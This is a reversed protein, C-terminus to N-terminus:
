IKDNQSLTFSIHVGTLEDISVKYIRDIDVRHRVLAKGSGLQVSGSHKRAINVLHHLGTGRTPDDFQSTGLRIAFEIAEFDDRLAPNKSNSQLSTSLGCGYDAISIEAFRNPVSNFTQMGIFGSSGRAHEITNQGIESIAVATDYAAYKEFNMTFRLM